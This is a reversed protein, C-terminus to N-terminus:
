KKINGRCTCEGKRLQGYNKKSQETYIKQEAEKEHAKGRPLKRRKRSFCLMREEKTQGRAKLSGNELLNL